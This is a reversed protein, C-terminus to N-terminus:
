VLDVAMVIIQQSATNEPFLLIFHHFESDWGHYIKAHDYLRLIM